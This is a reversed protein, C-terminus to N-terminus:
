PASYVGSGSPRPETVRRSRYGRSILAVTVSGRGNPLPRRVQPGMTHYDQCDGHVHSKGGNGSEKDHERRASGHGSSRSNLRGNAQPVRRRLRCPRFLPVDKQKQPVGLAPAEHVQVRIVRIPLAQRPQRIQLRDVIRDVPRRGFFVLPLLLVQLRGFADAIEVDRVIARAGRKRIVAIQVQHVCRPWSAGKRSVRVLVASVLGAKEGSPFL